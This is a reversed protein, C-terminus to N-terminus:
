MRYRVPHDRRPRHLVEELVLAAEVGGLGEVLRRVRGRVAGVHLDEVQGGVGRLPPALVVQPAGEHGREQELDELLCVVKRGLRRPLLLFVFNCFLGMSVWIENGM